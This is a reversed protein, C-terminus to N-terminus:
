ASDEALLSFTMFFLERHTTVSITERSPKPQLLSGPIVPDGTPCIGPAPAPPVLAPM